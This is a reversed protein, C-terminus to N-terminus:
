DKRLQVIEEKIGDKTVICIKLADGTYVDREAASIFVDKVLQLAKELTLPLHEVNQMNKFGIQNDLLPQLMASASGAAKFSDREYSGVPDFSYVAGKGEEDLGGIINYVYYPFFRRSYLITSLMAAIAGTTMTKNNSHKYMKLRAEIIKTLTLCDGHFGTCGIVTKDTLRYCKPSDRCHIAYGESLRTDSAVISFDEGAIALVTGGNFTYPSFRHQVPAGLEYAREPRFDEYGVTSLM